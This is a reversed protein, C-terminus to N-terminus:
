SSGQPLSVCARCRVQPQPPQPLPLQGHDEVVQHTAFRKSRRLQQNHAQVILTTESPPAATSVAHQVFNSFVDLAAETVGLGVPQVQAGVAFERMQTPEAISHPQTGM